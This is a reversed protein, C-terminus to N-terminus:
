CEGLLATLCSSLVTKVSLIELRTPFLWVLHKTFAILPHLGVSLFIYLRRFFLPPKHSTQVHYGEIFLPDLPIGSIKKNKTKLISSSAPVAGKVANSAPFFM